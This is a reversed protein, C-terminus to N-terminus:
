TEAALYHGRAFTVPARVRLCRPVVQVELHQEAPRPEGDLHIAQPAATYLDFRHGTLRVVDPHQRHAGALLRAFHALGDGYGRGRFAWLDMLGDDLRWHSSLSVLGGGHLGHACVTAMLFRGEAQQRGAPGDASLRLDVARWGRAVSFTLLTNYWYGGVRRAARRHREYGAVVYADLGAGAWSMFWRGNCRGLDTFRVPADLAALAVRELARPRLPSAHPQGVARAWVNATGAPLAAFTVPSHALEGALTGLTGDGGAVFVTEVKAAVARRAAAQLVAMDLNRIVDVAVGQRAVAEAARDVSRALGASGARANHLFWASSV